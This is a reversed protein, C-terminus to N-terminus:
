MVYSDVSSNNNHVSAVPGIVFRSIIADFAICTENDQQFTLSASVVTRQSRAHGQSQSRYNTKYLRYAYALVVADVGGGRSTMGLADGLPILKVNYISNKSSSAVM